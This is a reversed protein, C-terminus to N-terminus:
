GDGFSLSLPDAGNDEVVSLREILEQVAAEDLHQALWAALASVMWDPRQYHHPLLALCIAMAHSRSLEGNDTTQRGVHRGAEMLAAACESSSLGSLGLSSILHTALTRTRAIAQNSNDTQWPADSQPTGWEDFLGLGMLIDEKLPDQPSIFDAKLDVLRRVAGELDADTWGTPLFAADDILAHIENLQEIRIGPLGLAQIEAFTQSALKRLEEKKRFRAQKEASSIAM